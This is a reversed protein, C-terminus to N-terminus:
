GLDINSPDKLKILRFYSQTDYVTVRNNADKLAQNETAYPGVAQTVNISPHVAVIIFLERKARMTDITEIVAKALTDVDDHEQM